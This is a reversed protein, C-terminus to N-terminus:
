IQSTSGKHTQDTWSHNNEQCRMRYMSFKQRKQNSVQTFRVTECQCNRETNKHWNWLSQQNWTEKSQLRSAINWSRGPKACQLISWTNPRKWRTESKGRNEKNQETDTNDSAGNEMGKEDNQETPNVDMTNDEPETNGTENDKNAETDTVDKDSSQDMANNEPVTKDTENDKKAETASVNQENNEPETKDTENDRKAETAPM